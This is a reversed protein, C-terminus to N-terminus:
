SSQGTGSSPSSEPQHDKNQDPSQDQDPNVPVPIILIEQRVGPEAGFSPNGMDPFDNGSFGQTNQIQSQDANLVLHSKDASPTFASLPVAINAGTGQGRAAKELVVYSVRGTQLDFVVDRIAGLPQNNQNVVSMGMLNSAKNVAAPIRNQSSPAPAPTIIAPPPAPTTTSPPPAPTTTVPASESQWSQSGSTAGGSSQWVVGGPAGVADYDYQYNYHGHLVNDPDSYVLHGDPNAYHHHKTPDVQNTVNDAPASRPAALCIAAVAIGSFITSTAKM